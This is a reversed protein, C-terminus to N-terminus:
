GTQDSRARVRAEWVSLAGVVVAEGGFLARSLGTGVAAALVVCVVVWGRNLWIMRTLGARPSRTSAWAVAAYLVSVVATIRWVDPAVGLGGAAAVGLHVGAGCLGCAGDIWLARRPSVPM